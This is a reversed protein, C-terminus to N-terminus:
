KENGRQHGVGDREVVGEAAPGAREFGAVAPGDAAVAAPRSDIARRVDPVEAGEQELIDEPANELCRPVLDPMHAVDGVHVVLGDALGAFGALGEHGEGLAPRLAKVGVARREVHEGRVLLGAGGGVDGLHDGHDFVEHCVAVGVQPPVAGDVEADGALRVVAFEGMEVTLRELRLGGVASALGVVGVFVVAFADGVEREPFGGLGLVAVVAPGAGPALAAGAPMDFAAGHADMVEALGQVQVAAADVQTEGVVFVLDGLALARGTVGGERAVPEVARVEEDLALLHRFAQAVEPSEVVHALHSVARHVQAVSQDACVVALLEVEGPMGQLGGAARQTLQALRNEHELLACAHGFGAGLGIGQPHGECFAGDESGGPGGQALVEVGGRGEAPEEGPELREIGDRIGPAEAGLELGEEREEGGEPEAGEGVFFSVAGV